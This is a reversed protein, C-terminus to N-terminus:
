RVAARVREALPRADSPDVWVSTPGPGGSLRVVVAAVEQCPEGDHTVTASVRGGILYVEDVGAGLLDELTAAIDPPLDATVAVTVGLDKIRRVVDIAPGAVVVAIPTTDGAPAAAILELTVEAKLRWAQWLRRAGPESRERELHGERWREVAPRLADLIRPLEASDAAEELVQRLRARSDSPRWPLGLGAAAVALDDADLFVGSRAPTLLWRALGAPGMTSAPRDIVVPPLDPHDPAPRLREVEQALFRDVADVLVRFPGNGARRRLAECAVQAWRGLHNALFEREAEVLSVATDPRETRWADAEAAALGAYCSLEVGLHDLQAVRLGAPMAFDHRRYFAAVKAATDGLQGEAGAFVSEYPGVERLFLREYEVALEPDGSALAALDPVGALVASLDPDPEAVILRGLVGALRARREAQDVLDRLAGDALTSM